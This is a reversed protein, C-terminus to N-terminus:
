TAATVLQTAVAKTLEDLLAATREFESIPGGIPDSVDEAVAPPGTLPRARHAQQAIASLVPADGTSAPGGLDPGGGALALRVFERLAFTRPLASPLLRMLAARHAETMTLILNSRGLLEATVPQARHPSLDLGVRGAIEVVEPAAPQGPRAAVGASGVELPASVSLGNLTRQLMAAALPSRIVNATCVLLVAGGRQEGDLSPTM